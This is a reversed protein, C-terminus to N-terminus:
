PNPPLFCARNLNLLLFVAPFINIVFVALFYIVGHQFLLQWLSSRNPSMLLGITTLVLIILDFSLAVNLM